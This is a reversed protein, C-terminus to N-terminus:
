IDPPLSPTMPAPKPIPVPQEPPLQALGFRRIVAEARSGESRMKEVQHLLLYRLHRQLHEKVTDPVNPNRAIIARVEEIRAIRALRLDLAGELQALEQEDTM